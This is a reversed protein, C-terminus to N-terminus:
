PSQNPRYSHHNFENTHSHFLVLPGSSKQHKNVRIEPCIEPIKPSEPSELSKLSKLSKFFIMPKM